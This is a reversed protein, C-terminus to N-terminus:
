KQLCPMAVINEGGNLLIDIFLSYMYHIKEGREETQKNKAFPSCYFEWWKHSISAM